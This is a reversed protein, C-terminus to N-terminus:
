NIECFYTEVFLHCFLMCLLINLEFNKRKLCYASANLVIFTHEANQLKMKKMVFLHCNQVMVVLSILNKTDM